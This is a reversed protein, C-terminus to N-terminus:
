IFLFNISNGSQSLINTRVVNEAFQKPTLTLFRIKRVVDRFTAQTNAVDEQMEEVRQGSSTGEGPDSQEEEEDKATFPLITSIVM